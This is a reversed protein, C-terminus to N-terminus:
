TDGTLELTGNVTLDGDIDARNYTETEGSEITYTEGSQVTLVSITQKALTLEIRWRRDKAFGAKEVSWDSVPYEGSGLVADVPSVINVTQQKKPSEDIIKNEAGDLEREVVGDPRNLNNLLTAAQTDNVVATLTSERGATTGTGPTPSVQDVDLAVTGDSLQIQWDGGSENVVTSTSKRNTTRQITIAVRARDASIQEEEYSSVYGEVRTLPPSLWAPPRLVVPSSRGGRDFARFTGGYGSEVSIDGARELDRWQRIDERRVEFGLSVTTATVTLDDVADIPTGNLRWGGIALTGNVELTGAVDVGTVRRFEGSEVTETEGASVTLENTM